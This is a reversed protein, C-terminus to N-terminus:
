SVQRAASVTKADRDLCDMFHEQCADKAEDFIRSSKLTIGGDCIARAVWERGEQMLEYLPLSGDCDPHSLVLSGKGSDDVQLRPYKLVDRIEGRDDESWEDCKKPADCVLNAVGSMAHIALTTAEEVTLEIKM